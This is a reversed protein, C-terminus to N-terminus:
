ARSRRRWGQLGLGSLLLGMLVADLSGGGGGTGSANTTVSSGGTGGSAGTGNNQGDNIPAADCPICPDGTGPSLPTQGPQPGPAPAPQSTQPLACTYIRVDDVYWGWGAIERDSGMRFRFRVSKGALPSLDYRSDVYGHSIGVFAQRGELPNGSDTALAGGYSNGADHLPSADTWSAGNDLSYELVGGDYFRGGGRDFDYAQSFHLFAGAPVTVSRQMEAASDSVRAPSENNLSTKGSHAFEGSIRWDNVQGSVPRFAWNTATAMDDFFIDAAQQPAPCADVQPLFGPQPERDMEVALTAKRVEQCDAQGIGSSSSSGLNLCGQYLGQYLDHYNSGSTLLHTQVEYYIKAVKDIGLGTVTQGNFNGGEVMLYAAKNNIGSNVHVEGQDGGGTGYLPSTMRDPQKYVTPDKMSRVAGTGPVDEGLLWKVEPTDTGAGNTQDIFEGWIDSLSENISGSQYYSNLGSTYQTFGHTLEHAVLDDARPMGDTYVMQEGNWYANQIDGIGYHVSSVLRKGQNDISDRGHVRAFFNYFDATYRHADRADQDGKSCTLDSEDCVLNGPLVDSHNSTYTARDLMAESQNFHLAIGGTRADVLVMERVPLAEKVGVEIQWVLRTPTASEPGILRPDYIALKAPSVKLLDRSLHHWKSVAAMATSQAKGADIGPRTPIEPSPSIEGNMSLLGRNSTNVVLEGGIVPVGGAVQQYRAVEGGLPHESSRILQLEERPNGLGFLPGYEQLAAMSASDAARDVGATTVRRALPLPAGPNAGIFSVQGSGAIKAVRAQHTQLKAFLDAGNEASAQQSAAVAQSKPSSDSSAIDFYCGGTFVASGALSLLLGSRLIKSM